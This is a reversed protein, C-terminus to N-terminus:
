QTTVGQYRDAEVPAQVSAPSSVDDLIKRVTLNATHSERFNGSKYPADAESPTPRKERTRPRTQAWHQQRM